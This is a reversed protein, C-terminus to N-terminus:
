PRITVPTGLPTHEYLWRAQHTPLRVCGHSRPVGFREGAREQWPAGHLCLTAGTNICMVWPVGPTVYGRGRMTVSTFKSLVTSEGVPTPSGSRGSSVPMTRVVRHQPNFAYLKQESLDILLSAILEVM